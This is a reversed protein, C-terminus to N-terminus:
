HRYSYGHEEKTIVSSYLWRLWWPAKKMTGVRQKSIVRFNRTLFHSSFGDWEGKAPTVKELQGDAIFLSDIRYVFERWEWVDFTEGAIKIWRSEEDYEPCLKVHNLGVKRPRVKTAGIPDKVRVAFPKVNYSVNLHAIGSSSVV